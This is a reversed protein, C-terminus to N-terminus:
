VGGGRGIGDGVCEDPRTKGGGRHDLKVRGQCPPELDIGCAEVFHLFTQRQEVPQLPLIASRHRLYQRECGSRVLIQRAKLVGVVPPPHAADTPWPRGLRRCPQRCRERTIAM